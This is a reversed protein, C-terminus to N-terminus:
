NDSLGGFYACIIKFTTTVYIGQGLEILWQWYIFIWMSRPNENNKEKRKKEAFTKLLSM